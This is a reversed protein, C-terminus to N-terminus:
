LGHKQLLPVSEAQELLERSNEGSLSSSSQLRVLHVWSPFYSSGVHPSEAAHSLLDMWMEFKNAQQFIIKCRQIVKKLNNRLCWTKLQILTNDIRSCLECLQTNHTIQNLACQIECIWRGLLSREMMGLEVQIILGTSAIFKLHWLLKSLYTLWLLIFRSLIM